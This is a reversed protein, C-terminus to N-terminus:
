NHKRVDDNCKQDWDIDIYMSVSIIRGKFNPHTNDSELVM